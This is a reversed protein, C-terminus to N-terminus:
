LINSLKLLVSFALCKHFFPLHKQKFNSYHTPCLNLDTTTSCLIWPLSLFFIPRALSALPWFQNKEKRVNTICKRLSERSSRYNKQSCFQKKQLLKRWDTISLLCTKRADYSWLVDWTPLSKYLVAQLETNQTWHRLVNDLHEKIETLSWGSHTPPVQKQFPLTKQPSLPFLWFFSRSLWKKM